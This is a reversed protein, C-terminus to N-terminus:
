PSKTVVRFFHNQQANEPATARLTITQFIGPINVIEQFLGTQTAGSASYTSAPTWTVLDTSFDIQQTLNTAATQRKFTITAYDANAVTESGVLPVNNTKWHRLFERLALPPNTAAPRGIQDGRNVGHCNACTRVEGPQFTIWYRERVVSEGDPAALQWTM